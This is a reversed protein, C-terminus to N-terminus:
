PEPEAEVMYTITIFANKIAPDNDLAGNRVSTVFGTVVENPLNTIVEDYSILTGGDNFEALNIEVVVNELEVPSATGAVTVTSSPLVQLTFTTEDDLGTLDKQIEFVYPDNDESDYILNFDETTADAFLIRFNISASDIGGTLLIGSPPIELNITTARALIGWTDFAFNARQYAINAATFESIQFTADQQVGNILFSMEVDVFEFGPLAGGGGINTATIQNIQYNGIDGPLDIVINNGQVYAAEFDTNVGEAINRIQFVLDAATVVNGGIVFEDNAGLFTVTNDGSPVSTRREANISASFKKLDEAISDLGILSADAPISLDLDSLNNGDPEFLVKQFVPNGDLTYVQTAEGPTRTPTLAAEVVDVIVEGLIEPTISNVATKNKIDAVVKAILTEKQNSM